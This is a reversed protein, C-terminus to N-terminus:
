KTHIPTASEVLTVVDQHGARQALELPTGRHSRISPDAGAELLLRVVEIHGEAAAFGLATDSDCCRSDPRAGHELLLRVMQVDGREAAPHLAPSFGNAVASVMGASAPEVPETPAGRELLAEVMYQNGGEAAYYLSMYDLAQDTPGYTACSALTLLLAMLPIRRPRSRV